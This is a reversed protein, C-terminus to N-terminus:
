QEDRGAPLLSAKARTGRLGSSSSRRRLGGSSTRQAPLGGPTARSICGDVMNWMKERDTCVNRSPSNITSDQLELVPYRGAQLTLHGDPVAQQQKQLTRKSGTSVSDGIEVTPVAAARTNRVVPESVSRTAANGKGSTSVAVRTRQQQRQILVAVVVILLVLVVAGGIVGGLLAGLNLHKSDAQDGQNSYKNQAMAEDGAASFQAIFYTGATSVNCSLRSTSIDYATAVATRNAGTLSSLNNSLITDTTFNYSLCAAPKSLSYGPAPIRLTIYSSSGDLTPPSTTASPGANWTLTVLGSLLSMNTALSSSLLTALAAASSPSYQLGISYESGAAAVAAALVLEAGVDTSSSLATLVRRRGASTSGTSNGSAASAIARPGASLKVAIKMVAGKASVTPMAIASVFVGNDGAALYSEGPVAQLGLASGIRGSVALLDKLRSWAATTIDPQSDLLARRGATNSNTTSTTPLSAGLLRCLQSVFSNLAAASITTDSSTSNGGGGLTEVASKVATMFADKAKDPLTTSSSALSAMAAIAQPAQEADQLAGGSLMAQVLAVSMNGVLESVAASSSSGGSSSSNASAAVAALALQAMQNAAQLLSTQDNAQLLDAVNIAAMAATANFGAAPPAVTVNVVGCTRSSDSDIACGYLQVTGQPLGVLTASTAVGLQQVLRTPMSAGGALVVAQRVGFEYKLQSSTTDQGVDAWGVARLTFAASPFSANLTTLTFCAAPDTSSFTCYPAGNLPVTLTATGSISVSASTAVTMVLTATITISSEASPLFATPITLQFAGAALGSSPNTTATVASLGSVAPAETSSWTVTIGAATSATNYPAALQLLVTLDRDTSHPASCATAACLRSLTGRLFPSTASRPRFSVSSTASLPTAGETVNKYVTATITHWVDSSLLRPPLTWLGQGQSGQESSAFCPTPYDSRRCEWSYKLAGRPDSPNDPDSSASANFVLTTNDLVDGAPGKLSALPPSGSAVVLVEASGSGGGSYTATVRLSISQGHIVNRLPGKITLQQGSQGSAPLGLWGSPSTWNWALTRGKCAGGVVEASLRLGSTIKATQTAPGSIAVTPIANGAYVVFSTNATSSTNLWSTLTVELTYTFGASLAEVETSNLALILRDSIKALSNVRGMAAQMSAVARTATIANLDPAEPGPMQSLSVTTWTVDAWVARGSPDNSQSADFIVPPRLAAASMFSASASECSTLSITAPGTLVATPSVCSDCLWVEVTGEFARSTNLASVLVSGRTLLTLNQGAGLMANATLKIILVPDATANSSLPMTSTSCLAGGGGLLLTSSPEFVAGCPVRRLPAPEAMLAVFVTRGDDSIQAVKLGLKSPQCLATCAVQVITQIEPDCTYRKCSPAAMCVYETGCEDESANLSCTAKGANLQALLQNTSSRSCFPVPPPPSASSSSSTPSPPPAAQGSCNCNQTAPPPETILLSACVSLNYSTTPVIPLSTSANGLALLPWPSTQATCDVVPKGVSYLWGGRSDTRYMRCGNEDISCSPDITSRSINWTPFSGCTPQPSPPAPLIHTAVLNDILRSFEPIPACTVNRRQVTTSSAGCDCQSWNGTVYEVGPSIDFPESYNTTIGDSFRLFFRPLHRGFQANILSSITVAFALRPDESLLPVDVDLIGPITPKPLVAIADSSNKQQEQMTDGTPPDSVCDSLYWLTIEFNPPVVGPAWGVTSWRIPVKAGMAVVTGAAPLYVAPPGALVGEGLSMGGGGASGSIGAAPGGSATVSMCLPRRLSTPSSSSSVNTVFGATGNAQKDLWDMLSRYKPAQSAAQGTYEQLGWSGTRTFTRTSVFQMFPLGDGVMGARRYADLYASYLGYMAPHRNLDNFKTALGVTARGSEIASSEVISPGAEYTILPVGYRAAAAVLARADAEAAPISTNCKAVMQEVSLNVDVAGNQGLGCGWYGTIGFYDPAALSINIKLQQQLQVSGNATWLVRSGWGLTENLVVGGCGTGNTGCLLAWGGMVVKVRSAGGGPASGFVTRFITAIQGTRLAHYRYGATAADTSLNLALGRARAFKSQSFLSNWVENSHEVYVNVDPRLSDRLLTAMATVYADDALHHVNVWPDAGVLNCLQVIYELAIGGPGTQTDRNPKKRAEWGTIKGAVVDAWFGDNNTDMLDMFRLVRYRAISKLFWPHFPTREVRSEWAGGTGAGGASAAAGDGSPVIRINRLPNDPNTASLVLHIGNDGCYAAGTAACVLDATPKFIIEMRGKARSSVTADYEFDLHGEGDYLVVYRGPWAHLLMDRQLLKHAVVNIPLRAPFGDPRFELPIGMDWQSELVTDRKYGTMWVSSSKMVDTWVWETSWYSLGPLNIGVLSGRNLRPVNDDKGIAIAEAESINCAAGGYGAWCRCTGHFCTGYVCTDACGCEGPGICSTGPVCGRCDWQDCKGSPGQKWGVDCICSTSNEACRGHGGCGCDVGCDAGKYGPYCACIGQDLCEGNWNCNNPCSVISCALGTINAKCTCSWTRTTKRITSVNCWGQDFTCKYGCNYVEVYTVNSCDDGRFGTYCMCRGNALCVGNGSCGPGPCTSPDPPPPLACTLSSNLYSMLGQYKPAESPDWDQAEMLGWSGSKTYAGMSSFHVIRSVNAAALGEMYTKYIGTMAPDRNAQIALDTSSGDGTMGQGAEYALLPKGYKATIAAHLKVQDMTNNVQSPLTTNMFITLNTDRTTNYSGFYPAIALADIHASANGCSLLKDSSINSSVQGSVVVVVRDTHGAWVAKWIKSINATRQGTFCLRAENTAGGYWKNGQETLNMALGMAQAYRGGPFGTHWLENGYEVYVRLDPRLADRVATAFQTVFDDSAAFPMNFWPDAGLMNALKIMYELPVGGLNSAFSIDEPRPREDWEKPLNEANSNMWDMFRLVGFPRLFELFAPHFPQDGWVAAQEYGPMIVRINRIPDQPDTREVQILLGNNFDTSPYFTVQIHGPELYAVDKIDSMGLELSGKGDYLITYVGGPAHAQLDREVLTSVKQLPALVAPYGVATRGGPGDTRNILSIPEGTSWPGGSLFTQPIWARSAKFVDVFTWGRAWDSIGALNIGVRQNCASPTNGSGPSPVTDCSAGSVGAWCVCSGNVCSGYVCAPSCAPPQAVPLPADASSRPLAGPAAATGNVAVAALWTKLARYTPTSTPKSVVLAAADSATGRCEEPAYIRTTSGPAKSCPSATRTLDVVIDGGGTQNHWRWLSDLMMDYLSDHIRAQRLVSELDAEKSANAAMDQLTLNFDAMSAWTINEPGGTYGMPPYPNTFTCPWVTTNSGCAKIARDYNSRAGYLPGLMDPGGMYALVDLGLSKLWQYSKYYGVDAAIVSSRLYQLATDLSPASSRTSLYSPDGWYTPNPRKAAWAWYANGGFSGPLAYADIYSLNSGAYALTNAPSQWNTTMVVRLQGRPRGADAWAKRAVVSILRTSNSLHSSIWGPGDIGYEVTLTLNSSLNGAIYSVIGYIYPDSENAARPLSIWMNAGITNALQVMHEVAVGDSDRVQTRHKPTTRVAWDRPLLRPNNPDGSTLMWASFRLLPIDQLVALFESHFMNQQFDHENALPVIRINVVPDLTLSSTIRVTLGTTSPTIDVVMRGPASTLPPWGADGSLEVTGNGDYLVVYHGASYYAGDKGITTMASWVSTNSSSNLGSPYGDPRLKVNSSALLAWSANQTTRRYWFTWSSSHKMLDTFILSNASAWSGGYQLPSLDLAPLALGTLESFALGMSIVFLVARVTAFVSLRYLHTRRFMELITRPFEIWEAM